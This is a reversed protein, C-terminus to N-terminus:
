EPAPAPRAVRVTFAIALSIVLMLAVALFADSWPGADGRYFPNLASSNADQRANLWAGTIAAGIGGGMFASGSSLGMGIGMERPSLMRSVASNMPAGIMSTGAGAVFVGIAVVWADAGAAVSGLYLTAMLMTGLGAIIPIRPGIRDSVKGAMRSGVAIAVAGPTLAFGADTPTLGNHEVLMLPVLVLSSMYAMMNFIGVGMLRVYPGNHFLSPPAFPHPTTNIRWVFIATAMIAILFSMVPGFSAYGASQGRTIGFLSLGIASTLLTGGIADFRREDTIRTNPLARRSLVIVVAAVVVPAIFLFRWGISDGILGGVLPGVASGAGVASATLGMAAGRRDEPMVRAIMIMSLAPVAAGGAGQILRGLVLMPFSPALAAILSGLAFGAIGATFLTRSGIFDSLRGVLPIGVAYMLSYATIVWSLRATSVDFDVRIESLLVNVMSGTLVSNLIAIILVSLFLRTPIAREDPVAAGPQPFATAVVPPSSTRSTM